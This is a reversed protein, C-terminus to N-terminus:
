LKILKVQDIVPREIKRKMLRFSHTGASLFVIIPGQHNGSGPYQWEPEWSWKGKKLYIDRVKHEDPSIIYEGNISIFLGNTLHDAAFTRLQIEWEGPTKVTIFYEAYGGAITDPIIAKGGTAEHHDHITFDQVNTFDEAEFEIMGNREVFVKSSKESLCSTCSWLIFCSSIFHLLTGM